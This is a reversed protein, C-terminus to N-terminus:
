LQMLLIEFLLQEAVAGKPRRLLEVGKWPQLLDGQLLPFINELLVPRSCEWIAPGRLSRLSSTAATHLMSSEESDDQPDLLSGEAREM